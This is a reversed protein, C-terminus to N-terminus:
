LSKRNIEYLVIATAVAVNLSDASGRMPIRVRADCADEYEAPLGAQENGMLLCVPDKYDVKRYDESARLSTGVLMAGQKRRWADFDAFRARALKVAFISGMSARVAEISFPDCCEDILVIGEAGVADATRMITGLNGPDRIMQLAILCSQPKPALDELKHWGIRYIGIVGQPNDRRAIKEMAQRGAEICEIGRKLCRGLYEKLKPHDKLEASFILTEPYVGQEEATLATRLGEAVYLGSERRHKKDDLARVLKITANAASTVIKVSNAESM